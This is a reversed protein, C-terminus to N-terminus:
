RTKQQSKLELPIHIRRYLQSKADATKDLPINVIVDKLKPFQSINISNLHLGIILVNLDIATDKGLLNIKGNKIAQRLNANLM